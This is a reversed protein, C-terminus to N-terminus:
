TSRMDQPNMFNCLWFAEFEIRRAIDTAAALVYPDTIVGREYLREIRKRTLSFQNEYTSQIRRFNNGDHSIYEDSPIVNQILNKYKDDDMVWGSSGQITHILEHSLTIKRQIPDDGLLTKNIYILTEGNSKVCKGRTGGDGMKNAFFSTAKSKEANFREMEVIHIKSLDINRAKLLVKVQPYIDLELVSDGSTYDVLSKYRDKSLVDKAIQLEKTLPSNLGFIQARDEPSIYTTFDPKILPETDDFEGILFDDFSNKDGKSPMKDFNAIDEEYESIIAQGKSSRSFAVVGLIAISAAAIGTAIAVRSPGKKSIPTEEDQPNNVKCTWEEPICRKGCLKNGVECRRLIM